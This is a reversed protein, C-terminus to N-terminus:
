ASRKGTEDDYVGSVDIRRSVDFRVVDTWPIELGRRMRRRLLTSLPWPGAMSSTRYGFRHGAAAGRSCLLTAVRYRLAGTPTTVRQLEVDRVYGICRGTEDHVPVAFFDTSRM